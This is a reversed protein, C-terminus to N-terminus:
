QVKQKLRRRTTAKVKTGSKVKHSHVIFSNFETKVADMVITKFQESRAVKLDVHRYFRDSIETVDKEKVTKLNERLARKAFTRARRLVRDFKLTKVMSEKSTEKSPEIVEKMAEVIKSKGNGNVKKPKEVNSSNAKVEMMSNEVKKGAM